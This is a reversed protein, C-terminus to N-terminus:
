RTRSLHGPPPHDPHTARQRLGDPQFLCRQVFQHPDARPAEDALHDSQFAITARDLDVLVSGSEPHAFRHYEGPARERNWEARSQEAADEVAHAPRQLRHRLLRPIEDLGTNRGIGQVGGAAPGELRDERWTVFDMFPVHEASDGFPGAGGVLDHDRGADAPSELPQLATFEGDGIRDACQRVAGREAERMGPWYPYGSRASVAQRSLTGEHGALPHEVEEKRDRFSPGDGDGAPEARPLGDDLLGQGLVGLGVDHDIDAAALPAVFHRLHQGFEGVEGRDPLEIMSRETRTTFVEFM